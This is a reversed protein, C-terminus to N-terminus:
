RGQYPFKLEEELYSHMIFGRPTEFRLTYMWKGKCTGEVIRDVGKVFGTLGICPDRYYPFDLQLITQYVQAQKGMMEARKRLVEAIGIDTITATM